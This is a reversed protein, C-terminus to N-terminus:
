WGLIGLGPPSAAGRCTSDPLPDPSHVPMPGGSGEKFRPPPCTDGRTSRAPPRTLPACTLPFPASSSSRVPSSSAVHHPLRRESRLVRWATVVGDAAAPSPCAQKNKTMAHTSADRQTGRRRRCARAPAQHRNSTRKERRTTCSVRRDGHRLRMGTEDTQRM